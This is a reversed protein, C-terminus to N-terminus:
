AQSRQIGGYCEITFNVTDPFGEAFDYTCICKRLNAFHDGTDGHDTGEVRFEIDIMYFDSFGSGGTSINGSYSGTKMIFDIASGSSADTFEKFNISFSATTVVDNQKRCGVITGRQYLTLRESKDDAFTFNGEGEYNMVLEVPTGTGDKLTIQGDRVTKVATSAM